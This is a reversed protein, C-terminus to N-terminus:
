EFSNIDENLYESLQSKIDNDVTNKVERSKIEDKFVNRNVRSKIDDNFVNQDERSKIDENFVNGDVRYVSYQDNKKYIVFSFIAGLNLNNKKNVELSFIDVSGISSHVIQSSGNQFSKHLM